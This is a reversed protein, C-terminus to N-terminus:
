AGAFGLGFGFGVGGVVVVAGFVVGLGVTAAAAPTATIGRGPEQIVRRGLLQIRAPRGVVLLMAERVHGARGKRTCFIIENLQLSTATGAAAATSRIPADPNLRGDLPGAENILLLPLAVPVLNAAYMM